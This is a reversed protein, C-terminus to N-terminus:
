HAARRSSVFRALVQGHHEAVERTMGAFAPVWSQMHLGDFQRMVEVASPGPRRRSSARPAEIEHSRAVVHVARSCPLSSCLSDYQNRFPTVSRGPCQHVARSSRRFAYNGDRKFYKSHTAVGLLSEGSMERKKRHHREREHRRKATHASRLESNRPNFQTRRCTDLPDRDVGCAIRKGGIVRRRRACLMAALM